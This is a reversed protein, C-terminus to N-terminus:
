PAPRTIFHVFKCKAYGELDYHYNFAGVTNAYLVEACQGCTTGNMIIRSCDNCYVAM